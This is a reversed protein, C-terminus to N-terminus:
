DGRRSDKDSLGWFAWEVRVGGPLGNSLLAACLLCLVLPRMGQKLLERRKKRQEPGLWVPGDHGQCLMKTSNKYPPRFPVDGAGLSVFYERNEHCDVPLCGLTVLDYADYASELEAKM